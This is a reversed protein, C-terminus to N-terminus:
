ASASATSEGVLNKLWATYVGTLITKFEDLKAYPFVRGGKWGALEKRFALIGPDTEHPADKLLVVIERMPRSSDDRCEEAAHFAKKFLNRPGWDDQFVQIYYTCQCINETVAARYGIIHENDRLGVPVLLTKFPMGHEEVVAPLIAHAAQREDELDGPTSIFMRYM